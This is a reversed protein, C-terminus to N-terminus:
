DTGQCVRKWNHSALIWLPGFGELLAMGFGLGPELAASATVGPNRVLGLLHRVTTHAGEEEGQPSPSAPWM